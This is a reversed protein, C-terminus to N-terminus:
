SAAGEADPSAAALDHWAALCREWDSVTLSRGGFWSSEVTRVLEGLAERQDPGPALVPLLERSTLSARVPAPRRRALRSQAVLLLEHVAEGFAGEAALREATVLSGDRVRRAGAGEEGTPPAPGSDGARQRGVLFTVLWAVVLAVAVGLFVYLVVEALASVGNAGFRPVPVGTAPRQEQPERAPLTKQYAGSSLIERARASPDPPGEDAIAAGSAGAVLALALCVAVPLRAPGIGAM